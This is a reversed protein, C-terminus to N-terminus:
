VKLAQLMAQQRAIKKKTSDILEQNGGTEAAVLEGKLREIRAKHDVAAIQAAVAPVPAPIVPLPVDPAHDVVSDFLNLLLRIADIFKQLTSNHILSGKNLVRTVEGILPTAIALMTTFLPSLKPESQQNGLTLASDTM